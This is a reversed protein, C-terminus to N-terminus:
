EGGKSGAIKMKKSLPKRDENAPVKEEIELTAVSGKGGTQAQVVNDAAALNKAVEENSQARLFDDNKEIAERVRRMDIEKGISYCMGTYARMNPITKQDVLGYREHQSIITRIESETLETHPLIAQTGANITVSFIQQNGPIRYQFERHQKTTNALYLKTM